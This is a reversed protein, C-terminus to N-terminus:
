PSRKPLHFPASNTIKGAGWTERTKGPLPGGTVRVKRLKGLIRLSSESHSCEKLRDGVILCPEWWKYGQLYRANDLKRINVDQHTKDLTTLTTRIVLSESCGKSAPEDNSSQRRLITEGYRKHIKGHHKSYKRTLKWSGKTYELCLDLTLKKKQTLKLFQLYRRGTQWRGM